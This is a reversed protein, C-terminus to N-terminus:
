WVKPIGKRVGKKRPNHTRKRQGGGRPAKILRRVTFSRLSVRRGSLCSRLWNAAAKRGGIGREDKSSPNRKESQAFPNGSREKGLGGLIIRKKQVPCPAEEGGGDLSPRGVSANVPRIRRAPEQKRTGKSEEEACRRGHVGEVPRSPCFLGGGIKRNLPGQGSESREL